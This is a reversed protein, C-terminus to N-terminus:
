SVDRDWLKQHKATKMECILATTATPTSLFANRQYTIFLLVVTPSKLHGPAPGRKPGWEVSGLWDPAPHIPQTKLKLTADRILGEM